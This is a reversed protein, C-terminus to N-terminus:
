NAFTIILIATILKQVCQVVMVMLINVMEKVLNRVSKKSVVTDEPVAMMM